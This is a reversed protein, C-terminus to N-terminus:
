KHVEKLYYMTYTACPFQIMLSEKLDLIEKSSGVTRTNAPKPLFCLGEPEDDGSGGSYMLVYLRKM